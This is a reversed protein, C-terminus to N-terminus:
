SIESYIHNYIKLSAGANQIIFDLEKKQISLYNTEIKEGIKSILTILNDKVSKKNEMKSILINEM